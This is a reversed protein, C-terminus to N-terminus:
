FPQTFFAWRLASPLNEKIGLLSSPETFFGSKIHLAIAM